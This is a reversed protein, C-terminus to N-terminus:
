QSAIALNTPGPGEFVPGFPGLKPSHASIKQGASLDAVRHNTSTILFGATAVKLAARGRLYSADNTRKQYAGFSFPNGTNNHGGATKLQFSKFKSYTNSNPITASHIPGATIPGSGYIVGASANTAMALASGTVAAYIQWNAASHKLSEGVSLEGVSSARRAAFYENLRNELGPKSILSM